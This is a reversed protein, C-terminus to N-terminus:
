WRKGNVKREASDKSKDEDGTTSQQELVVGCGRIIKSGGASSEMIPTEQSNLGMAAPEAIAKDVRPRRERM